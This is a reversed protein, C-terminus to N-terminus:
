FQLRVLELHSIKKKFGCRLTKKGLQSSAALKTGAFLLVLTAIWCSTVKGCQVVVVTYLQLLKLSSTLLDSHTGFTTLSWFSWPM